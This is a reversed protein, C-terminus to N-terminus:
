NLDFKNLRGKWVDVIQNQAQSVGGFIWINNNDTIVSANKRYDFNSPLAQNQDTYEWEAGNNKSYIFSNGESSFLLIYPKEDYFFITSGDLSIPNTKKSKLATIIGDKEQIIWIDNNYSNNAKVGGAISIYKVAYTTKSEIQSTSFNKSPLDIPSSFADMEMIHITSFDDTEAIKYTDNDNVMVLIDGKTASPLIGYIAIIPYDTAVQIWSYGNSSRFLRNNEDILFLANKSITLSSLIVTPPLESLETSIWNVGDDLPSSTATVKGNLLNYTIFRNNFAITKQQEIGQPLYSESIKEWSLVSPDKEYINLQFLYTKENEGNPSTTTISKLLSFDISDSQTWLFTSDNSLQISVSSFPDLTISGAISLAISDVHFQFPLPNKNFIRNNIQDITFKTATLVSLSDTKSSMSFSYIQADPSYELEIDNSSGLCSFFLLLNMFLISTWLIKKSIMQKLFITCWM